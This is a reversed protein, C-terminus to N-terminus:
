KYTEKSSTKNMISKKKKTCTSRGGNQKSCTYRHKNQFTVKKRYM